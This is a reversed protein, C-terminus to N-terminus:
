AAGLMDHLRNIKMTKPSRLTLRIQRVRQRNRSWTNPNPCGVVAKEIRAGPTPMREVVSNSPHNVAITASGKVPPAGHCRKKAAENSGDSHSM